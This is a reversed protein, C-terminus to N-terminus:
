KLYVLPIEHSQMKEKLLQLLSDMSQITKLVIQSKQQGLRGELGRTVAPDKLLPGNPKDGQILQALDSESLEPALLHLVCEQYIVQETVFQDYLLDWGQGSRALKYVQIGNVVLPWVALVVGIAEFGSM